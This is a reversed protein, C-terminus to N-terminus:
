KNLENEIKERYKQFKEEARMYLYPNQFIQKKLFKFTKARLSPHATLLGTIVRIEFAFPFFWLVETTLYIIIGRVAWYLAWQKLAETSKLKMELAKENADKKM